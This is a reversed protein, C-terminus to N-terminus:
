DMVNEAHHGHEILGEPRLYSTSIVQLSAVHLDSTQVAVFVVLVNILQAYQLTRDFHSNKMLILAAKSAGMRERALSSPSLLFAARM